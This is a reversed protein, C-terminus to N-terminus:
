GPPGTGVSSPLISWTFNDLLALSDLINDSVDFVMLQLTMTEGPEVPANTQLWLTGGGTNSLQM